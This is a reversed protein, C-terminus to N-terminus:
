RQNLMIFKTNSIITSTNNIIAGDVEGGMFNIQCIFAHYPKEDMYFDNWLVGWSMMMWYPNNLQHKKQNKM